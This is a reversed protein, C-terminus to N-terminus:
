RKCVLLSLDDTPNRFAEQFLTEVVSQILMQGPLELHRALFAVIDKEELMAGTGDPTETLADSYLFLMDGPNFPHTCTAYAANPQTGLLDGQTDLLSVRDGSLLIPPPAAAAAYQLTGAETDVLGLFMTAFKGVMMLNRLRSNLQALAMGPPVDYLSSDQLLVHLAFAYLAATMGHGSVDATLLLTRTPSLQRVARYDGGLESSPRYFYALDLGQAARIEALHLLDPLLVSQLTAAEQLDERISRYNAEFHDHLIKRELHGLMRAILDRGNIPKTIFDTVGADFATARFDLSDSATQMIIVPADPTDQLRRCVTLGDMVPMTMDLLILDPRQAAIRTLCEQGDAAEDIQQFGAALCLGRLLLRNSSVDDVILIRSTELITKRSILNKM